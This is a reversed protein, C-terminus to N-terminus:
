VVSKRDEMIDKKAKLAAKHAKQAKSLREGAAKDKAVRDEWEKHAAALRNLKEAKEVEKSIEESPIREAKGAAENAAESEKKLATVIKALAARKARGEKLEAKRENLKKELDKITEELIANDGDAESLDSEGANLAALKAEAARDLEDCKANHAGIDAIKKSLAESGVPDAKEPEDGPVHDKRRAQAEGLEVAAKAITADAAEYSEEPIGASSLLLKVKDKSKMSKIDQPNSSLPSLMAKFDNATIPQVEPIGDENIIHKTVSISSGSPVYSRIATITDKGNGLVAKVTSKKKGHTIRDTGPTIIEWLASSGTTKGTDERGAIELHQGNLRAKFAKILRNNIIELLLIHYGNKM